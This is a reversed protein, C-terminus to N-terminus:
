RNNISTESVAKKINMISNETKEIINALTKSYDNNIMKFYHKAEELTEMECRNLKVLCESKRCLLKIKLSLTNTNLLARDIDNICEQFKRIHKLFASRNGYALALEESSIPAWSISRSYCKWIQEHVQSNHICSSFLQNGEVRAEESNKASKSPLEEWLELFLKAKEGKLAQIIIQKEKELGM